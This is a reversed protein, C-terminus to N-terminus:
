VVNRRRTKANSHTNQGRVPLSAAHRIGRLSRIERLKQINQKKTRIVENGVICNEEIYKRIRAVIEENVEQLRITLDLNLNKCIKFATTIGIGYISTLSYPLVKKIPLNVGAINVVSINAM